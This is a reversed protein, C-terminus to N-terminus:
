LVTAQHFLGDNKGGTEIKAGAEVSASLIGKVRELQKQNVVPGLAVQGTAPNGVPMHSAKEALKAVFQDHIGKQV